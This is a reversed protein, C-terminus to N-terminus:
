NEATIVQITSSLETTGQLVGTKNSPFQHGTIFEYHNYKHHNNLLKKNVSNNLVVDRRINERKVKKFGADILSSVIRDGYIDDLRLPASHRIKLKDLMLNIFAVNLRAVRGREDDMGGLHFSLDFLYTPEDICKMVMDYYQLMESKQIDAQFLRVLEFKDFRKLFTKIPMDITTLAVVGKDFVPFVLRGMNRMEYILPDPSPLTDGFHVYTGGPKLVRRVERGVGTIDPIESNLFNIGTAYQFIGDEFPLHYADTQLFTNEANRKHALHLPNMHLDMSMLRGQLPTDKCAEPLVGIGTGIDLITETGPCVSDLTDRVIMNTAALSPLRFRVLKAQNRLESWDTPAEIM